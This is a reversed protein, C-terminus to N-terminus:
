VIDKDIVTGFIINDLLSHSYLYQSTCFPTFFIARKKPAVQTIDHITQHLIGNRCQELDIGTVNQLFLQRLRVINEKDTESITYIKHKGPTFLLALVLLHEKVKKHRWVM